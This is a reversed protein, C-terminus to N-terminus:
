KSWEEIGHYLDNETINQAIKLSAECCVDACKYGIPIFPNQECFTGVFDQLTVKGAKFALYTPEVVENQIGFHAGGDEAFFCSLNFDGAIKVEGLYLDFNENEVAINYEDLPMKKVEVTIGYNVLQSKIMNAAAIKMNNASNVILSLTIREGEHLLNIGMKDYECGADLFAQRAESSNSLVSNAVIPGMESWEADFPTATPVAFGQMAEECLETQNVALMVAHRFQKNKCMGKKSNLGLFLLNNLKGKQNNISTSRVNGDSLTDFLYDIEGDNFLNVANQYDRCEKLAIVTIKPKQLRSNKNYELVPEGNKESLKYLGSGILNDKQCVIPFTLLHLAYINDTKLIFRVVSSGKRLASDFDALDAKYRESQKARSFSHVVDDSTIPTGDSFKANELNITITKNQEVYSKALVPVCERKASITYLSEYILSSLLRNTDSKCAYPDTSDKSAFPLTLEELTSSSGSSDKKGKSCAGLSVLLACILIFATVRKM